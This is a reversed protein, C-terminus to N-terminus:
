FSQPNYKKWYKFIVKELEDFSCDLDGSSIIHATGMSSENMKYLFYNIGKENNKQEKLFIGIYNNHNYRISEIKNIEEWKIFKNDYFSFGNFIGNEDIKLFANKRFIAKLIIYMALFCGSIGFISFIIVSNKTPLLFYTHESPYSLFKFGLFYLTFLILSMVIITKLFNKNKNIITM